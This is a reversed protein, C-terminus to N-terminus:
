VAFEVGSKFIGSKPSRGFVPVSEQWFREGGLVAWGGGGM